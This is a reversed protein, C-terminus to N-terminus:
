NRLMTTADTMKNLIKVLVKAETTDLHCAFYQEIGQRYVVWMRDLMGLGEDTILAFAGRRDSPCQERQILGAGELRDVLRTLNSRSLLVAEALEHLRLQHEPAESLTFLVDYWSLPPLAAQALDQEIQELLLVHATLFKRWALIHTKSLKVPMSQTSILMTSILIMVIAVIYLM